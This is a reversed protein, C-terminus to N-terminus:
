FRRCLLAPDAPSQSRADRNCRPQSQHRHGCPPWHGARHRHQRRRWRRVPRSRAKPGLALRIATDAHLGRWFFARKHPSTTVLRSAAGIDRHRAQSDSSVYLGSLEFNPHRTLIRALEVGTYGSAGIIIAKKSMFYDRKHTIISNNQM